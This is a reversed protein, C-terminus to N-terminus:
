LEMKCTSAEAADRVQERLIEYSLADEGTLEGAPVRELQARRARMTDALAARAEPSLDDLKDDFRHDGISTAYLPGGLYGVGNQNLAELTTTALLANWYRDGISRLKEAADSTMPASGPSHAACAALTVALARLRQLRDGSRLM